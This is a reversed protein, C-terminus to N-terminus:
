RLRRRCSNAIRKEPGCCVPARHLRGNKTVGRQWCFPKGILHLNVEPPAGYAKNWWFYLSSAEDAASAATAVLDQFQGRLGQAIDGTPNQFVVLKPIGAEIPELMEKGFLFL